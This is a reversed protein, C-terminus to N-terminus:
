YSDFCATTADLICVSITGIGWAIFLTCSDYAYTVWVNNRKTTCKITRRSVIDLLLSAYYMRFAVLYYSDFCATTADLIYASTTGIVWAIFPTWLIINTCEFLSCIIDAPFLTIVSPFVDSFSFSNSISINSRIFRSKIINICSFYAWILLCFKLYVMM